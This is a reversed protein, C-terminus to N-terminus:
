SRRYSAARCGDTAQRCRVPYTHFCRAGHTHHNATETPSNTPLIDLVPYGFVTYGGNACRFSFGHSRSLLVDYPMDKTTSRTESRQRSRVRYGSLVIQKTGQMRTKTDVGLGQRHIFVGHPRHAAGSSVAVRSDM